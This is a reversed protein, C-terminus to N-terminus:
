SRGSDGVMSISVYLFYLLVWFSFCVTIITWIHYQEPFWFWEVVFPPLFFMKCSTRYTTTTTIILTWRQLQWCFPSDPSIDWVSEVSTACCKSFLLQSLFNGFIAVSRPHFSVFRTSSLFRKTGESVRVCTNSTTGCDEVGADFSFSSGTILRHEMRQDEPVKLPDATFWWGSSSTRVPGRGGGPVWRVSCLPLTPVKLKLNGWPQSLSPSPPPPHPLISPTWAILARRPAGWRGAPSVFVISSCHLLESCKWWASTRKRGGLHAVINWQTRIKLSM